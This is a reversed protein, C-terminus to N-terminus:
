FGEKQWSVKSQTKSQIKPESGIPRVIIVHLRVDQSFQTFFDTHDVNDTFNVVGGPEIVFNLQLAEQRIHIDKDQINRLVYYYTM